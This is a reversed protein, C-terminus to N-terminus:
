ELIEDFHIGAIARPRSTEARPENFNQFESAGFVLESSVDELARGSVNRFTPNNVLLGSPLGDDGSKRYFVSQAFGTAKALHRAAKHLTLTGSCKASLKEQLLRIEDYRISKETDPGGGEGEVGYLRILVGKSFSPETSNTARFHMAPACQIRPVGGEPNIVTYRNPNEYRITMMTAGGGRRINSIGKGVRDVVHGVVLRHHDPNVVWGKSSLYEHEEDLWLGMSRIHGNRHRYFRFFSRSVFSNDKGALAESRYLLYDGILNDNETLPLRDDRQFNFIARNPALEAFKLGFIEEYLQRVGPHKQWIPMGPIALMIREFLEQKVGPKRQQFRRLVTAEYPKQRASIDRNVLTILDEFVEKTLGALGLDSQLRHFFAMVKKRLALQELTLGKKTPKPTKGSDDIMEAKYCTIKLSPCFHCNEPLLQVFKATAAYNDLM